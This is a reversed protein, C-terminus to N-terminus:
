IGVKEQDAHRGILGASVDGDAEDETTEPRLEREEVGAEKSFMRPDSSCSSSDIDKLEAELQRRRLERWRHLDTIADDLDRIIHDNESNTKLFTVDCIIV